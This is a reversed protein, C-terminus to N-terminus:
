LSYRLAILASGIVDQDDDGFTNGYSGSYISVAAQGTLRRGFQRTYAATAGYVTYSPSNAFDTDYWSVYVAGSIASNATLARTAVGNVTVVDDRVNDYSAASTGYFGTLYRRHDYSAGLGYTWRGRVASWVAAVGRSRYFNSNASSLGTLCGGQGGDAGFVCGGVGIPISGNPSAFSTPLAGVSGALQRGFSQVDNYAVVSLTNHRDIQWNAQGTVATEGYRRGGHVEVSLRPSPRWLVGVDWILGDQDYDLVRPASHDSRLRRDDDLIANGNADVLIQDQSIRNREWGLGGLAALTPTIPVTVDARGFYGEYRAGLVHIDDRIYGGSVTWGFPLGSQAYTQGVSADITHSTSTFSDDLVPQGPGLDIDGYGNSVKSWGFRYNATVNLPGVVGAYSPGAQAAYVQQTNDFDGAYLGPSAYGLSGRTRTAIGAANLSIEPTLAYSVNALGTHIDGDRYRKKWSFFHDYRYDIQGHLRPQDFSIDIGAGIGTYTVNDGNGSLNFNFVQQAEIYPHVETRAFAPASVGALLAAVGLAHRNV